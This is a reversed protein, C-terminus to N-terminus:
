MRTISLYIDKYNQYYQNLFDLTESEDADQHLKLIIQYYYRDRIKNIFAKTPGLIQCAVRQKVIDSIKLAENSADISSKASITLMIMTSFPPNNALSRRAIENKYFDKYSHTASAKIIDNEPSYTQVIVKGDIDKRGARGSAQELIDYTKEYANYFPLKMGLDANLVGVLSVLPFDLGKAVVQTGLLVDAEHKQFSSIIEEYSGQRRTTDSDMRLVRAEPFLRKIEEEAKQTGDGVYRIYPSKCKPCTRLSPIQYGCYHCMLTNNSKHYTLTVDCHPCKIEEGCSRCMVFTSYGRRNILLVAQENNALTSALAEQLHMSLVSRNGNKLEQRMDVITSNAIPKGNARVPIEILRIEGNLARYYSSISPTASGLILPINNYKARFQAGMHADYKPNTDQVYSSEQEEDMIIIGLNSIPALLASRPGIVIKAEGRKIRRWEDYRKGDSLQSHLIAVESGFRSKFRSVIQPTLSIEPVLMLATKRKIVKEILELYIETKGSGCVGFLLYINFSDLSIKEVADKQYNNLTVVKNPAKIFDVDRYVEQEKIQLSGNKILTTIISRSYGMDDVLFKIPANGNSEELYKIIEKQKVTKALTGDQLCVYKEYKPKCTAEFAVDIIANGLKRQKAIEKIFPELRELSAFNNGKLETKLEESLVEMNSFYVTKSYKTKMAKPLMMKYVEILFSYYHAAMQKGLEILEESLVPEYDILDIIPKLPKNYDTKEIVEIIFGALKQSGFPVFVRSGVQIFDEFNPPVIYDFPKNCQQNKSDVIVRVIM